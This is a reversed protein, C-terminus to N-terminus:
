LSTRTSPSDRMEDAWSAAIAKDIEDLSATRTTKGELAGIFDDISGKPRSACLTVRGDSLKDVELKDGAKIGLRGQLMHGARAGHHDLKGHFSDRSVVKNIAIQMILM